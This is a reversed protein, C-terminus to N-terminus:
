PADQVLARYLAMTQAVVVDESLEREVLDRAAAGMHRRLGPDGALKELAGALSEADRPMVLFGTVGDHVVERCGSIDTAVM